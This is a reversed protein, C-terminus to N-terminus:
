VVSKRDLSSPISFVDGCNYDVSGNLNITEVFSGAKEEEPLSAPSVKYEIKELQKEGNKDIIAVSVSVNGDLDILVPGDYAIGSTEPDEGSLSYYVSSSSPSDVVLIQKNAWTGPVPNLVRAEACFLSEVFFCFVTFLQFTKKM